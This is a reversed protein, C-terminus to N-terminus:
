KNIPEWHYIEKEIANIGMQGWQEKIYKIAEKESQFIIPEHLFGYEKIDVWESGSNITSIIFPIKRIINLIKKKSVFYFCNEIKEYLKYKDIFISSNNKSYIQIKYKLGEHKTKCQCIRLAEM